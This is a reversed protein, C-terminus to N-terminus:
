TPSDTELIFNGVFTTFGEPNELHPRLRTHPVQAITPERLCRNRASTILSRSQRSADVLMLVPVQVKALGWKAPPLALPLRITRIVAAATNTIALATRRIHLNADYAPSQQFQLTTNSRLDRRIFHSRNRWLKRVLWSPLRFLGSTVLLTSFLWPRTFVVRRMDAPHIAGCSIVSAVHDPHSTALTWALSAGTGMGVIHARDHGLTRIAGAIDGCLHRLDHGMPPKDSMGYGRLDVAITHLGLNGLLPLVDKFDAWCTYADHLLVVASGAPDGATAAHLRLGRTHVMDHHFQGDLAVVNPSLNRM